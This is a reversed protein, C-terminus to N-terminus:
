DFVEKVLKVIASGNEKVISLKNQFVAKLHMDYDDPSMPRNKRDLIKTNFKELSQYIKALAEKMKMVIQHLDDVTSKAEAIFKSIDQSEWKYKEIGPSM